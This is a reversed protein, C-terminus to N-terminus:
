SWKYQSIKDIILQRLLQQVSQNSARAVADIKGKQEETLRLSIAKTYISSKREILSLIPRGRKDM